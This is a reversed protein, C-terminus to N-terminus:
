SGENMKMMVPIINVPKVFVFSFVINLLMFFFVSLLIMEEKAVHCLTNYSSEIASYWLLDCEKM